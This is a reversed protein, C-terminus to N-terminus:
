FPIFREWSDRSRWYTCQPFSRFWNLKIWKETCDWLSICYWCKEFCYWHLHIFNLARERGWGVNRIELEFPLMPGKKLNLLIQWVAPWLCSHKRLCSRTLSGRNIALSITKRHFSLFFLSSWSPPHASSASFNAWIKPQFVIFLAYVWCWLLDLWCCSINIKVWKKSMINEQSNM